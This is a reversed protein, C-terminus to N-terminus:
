GHGRLADDDHAAASEDPAMENCPQRGRTV